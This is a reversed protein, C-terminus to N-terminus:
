LWRTIATSDGLVQDGDVLVPLTKLPVLRRAEAMSAPNDRGERLEVDLGKHALALRVRRAFPSHTFHYLIRM